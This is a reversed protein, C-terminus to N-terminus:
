QGLSMLVVGTIASIILVWQDIQQSIPVSLSGVYMAADFDGVRIGDKDKFGAARWREEFELNIWDDPPSGENFSKAAADTRVQRFIRHYARTRRGNRWATILCHVSVGSPVQSLFSLRFFLCVVLM